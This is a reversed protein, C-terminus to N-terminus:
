SSFLGFVNASAADRAWGAAVNGVSRLLEESQRLARDGANLYEAVGEALILGSETAKEAESRFAFQQDGLPMRIRYVDEIDSITSAGFAKDLVIVQGKHLKAHEGKFRRTLQRATVYLYGSGPSQDFGDTPDSADWFSLGWGKQDIPKADLLHSAIGEITQKM